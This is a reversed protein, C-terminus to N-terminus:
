VRGLSIEMYVKYKRENKWSGRLLPFVFHSKGFPNATMLGYSRVHWYTPFIPNNPHDIIAIGVDKGDIAGSYCCWEARKGWVGREESKTSCESGKSNTIKGKPVDLATAVRVSLLGGEKTDGFKVAGYKTDFDLRFDMIITREDFQFIEVTRTEFLQPTDNRTTWDSEIVFKAKTGTIEYKISKAIQKGAKEGRAWNDVGNIDGWASWVSTHHPHDHTEGDVDKMPYNRTVSIGSLTNMPYFYPRNSIAFKNINLATILTNGLFVNFTQEDLKEIKLNSQSNSM